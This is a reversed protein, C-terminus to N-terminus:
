DSKNGDDKEKLEKEIMYQKYKLYKSMEKQDDIGACFGVLLGGFFLGFPRGITALLSNWLLIITCVLTKM